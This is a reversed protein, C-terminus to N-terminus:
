YLITIIYRFGFTPSWFDVQFATAAIKATAGDNLSLKSLINVLSEIDM